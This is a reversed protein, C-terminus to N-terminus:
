EKSTCATEIKDDKLYDFLRGNFKCRDAARIKDVLYARTSAFSDLSLRFLILRQLDTDDRQKPPVLKLLKKLDPRKESFHDEIPIISDAM